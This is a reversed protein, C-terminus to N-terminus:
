DELLRNIHTKKVYTSKNEIIEAENEYISVDFSNNLSGDMFNDLNIPSRNKDVITLKQTIDEKLYEKLYTGLQYLDNKLKIVKAKLELLEKKSEKIINDRQEEYMDMHDYYPPYTHYIGHLSKYNMGFSIETKIFKDYIIGIPQLFKDVNYNIDYHVSHYQKLTLQYDRLKNLYTTLISNDYIDNFYDVDVEILEKMDNKLTEGTFDIFNMVKYRLTHSNFENHYESNLKALNSCGKINLVNENKNVLYQELLKHGGHNVISKVPKYINILDIIYSGLDISKETIEKHVDKLALFDVYKVCRYSLKEEHGFTTDLHYKIVKELEAERIGETSKTMGFSYRYKENKQYEDKHFSKLTELIDKRMEMYKDIQKRNIYLWNHATIKLDFVKNIFKEVQTFYVARDKMLKPHKDSYKENKYGKGFKFNSFMVNCGSETFLYITKASNGKNFKKGTNEFYDENINTIITDWENPNEEKTVVFYDKNLLLSKTYPSEETSILSKVSDRVRDNRKSYAKHDKEEVDLTFFTLTQMPVCKVGKYEFYCMQKEHGYKNLQITKFIKIEM